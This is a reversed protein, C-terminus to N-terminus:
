RLSTALLSSSSTGKDEEQDGDVKEKRMRLKRKEEEMKKEHQKIATKFTSYAFVKFFHIIVYKNIIIIFFISIKFWLYFIDMFQM